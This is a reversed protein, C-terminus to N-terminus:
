DPARSNHTQPTVTHPDKTYRKTDKHSEETDTAGLSDASQHGDRSRKDRYAAEWLLTEQARHRKRPLSLGPIAGEYVREPGGPVRGTSM